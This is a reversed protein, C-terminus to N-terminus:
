ASEKQQTTMSNLNDRILRLQAAMTERDAPSLGDLANEYLARGVNKADTVLALGAPTLKALKARSDNPDPYRDILGRKELRSVIGSVTMQDVDLAAALSVQALGETRYIEALARWQPLTFGHVSAEDEFRRRMLRAVEYILYGISNERTPDQPM